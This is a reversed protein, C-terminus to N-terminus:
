WEMKTYCVCFTSLIPLGYSKKSPMWWDFKSYMAQLLFSITMIQLQLGYWAFLSQKM